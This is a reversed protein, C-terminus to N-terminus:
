YRSRRLHAVMCNVCVQQCGFNYAVSFM